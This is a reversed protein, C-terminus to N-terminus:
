ERGRQMAPVPRAPDFWQEWTPSLLGPVGKLDLTAYIGLYRSEPGGDTSMVSGSGIDARLHWLKGDLGPPVAVKVEGKRGYIMEVTRDPANIELLLRDTEHQTVARVAFSRTGRPVFFYWHRATGVELNFRLWGDGADRGLLVIPTAPYTYALWREAGSISVRAVGKGTAPIPAPAGDDGHIHLIPEARDQVVHGDAGTIRVRAQNPKGDATDRPLYTGVRFKLPRDEPNWLAFEADGRVQAGDPDGLAPCPSFHELWPWAQKTPADLASQMFADDDYVPVRPVTEAAMPDFWEEPSRAVYPPVGDLSFSIKSYNHSDAFRLEVCWFRGAAGPEVNVTAAATRSQPTDFPRGRDYDLDGWLSRVRQGRPSFITIGWDERQSQYNQIWQTRVTFSKTGPPVWFWWRRPVSCQVVLWRGALANGVVEPEHPNGTFVVSRDLSSEVWFDPGHFVHRAPLNMELLYAGKLGAPVAFTKSAGEFETNGDVVANGAPDSLRLTVRTPNWAKIPWRMLHVTMTFAQGDPNYLYVKPAYRLYHGGDGVVTAASASSALCHLTWLFITGAVIRALRTRRTVRSAQPVAPSRRTNPTDNRM